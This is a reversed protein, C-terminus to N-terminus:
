EGGKKGKDKDGKEKQGKGGSKGKGAKESNRAKRAQAKKAKRHEHVNQLFTQSREEGLVKQYADFLDGREPFDKKFEEFKKLAEKAAEEDGSKRARKLDNRLAVYTERHKKMWYRRDESWKTYARKIETTEEDTLDIGDFYADYNRPTKLDDQEAAVPGAFLTLLALATFLAFPRTISM